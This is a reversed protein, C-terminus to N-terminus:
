GGEVTIQRYGQPVQPTVSYRSVGRSDAWRRAENESGFPGYSEKSVYKYYNRNFSNQGKIMRSISVFM